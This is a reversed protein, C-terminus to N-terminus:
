YSIKLNPDYYQRSKFDLTLNVCLNLNPKVNNQTEINENVWGVYMRFVNTHPFYIDHGEELWLVSFLHFFCIRKHKGTKKKTKNKKM